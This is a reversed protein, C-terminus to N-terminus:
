IVFYLEIIIITIASTCRDWFHGEPSLRKDQGSFNCNRCHWVYWKIDRQEQSQRLELFKIELNDGFSSRSGTMVRTAPSHTLLRGGHITTMILLSSNISSNNCTVTFSPEKSNSWLRVFHISLFITSFALSGTRWYLISPRLGLV